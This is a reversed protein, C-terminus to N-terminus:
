NLILRYIDNLNAYILLLFLLGMGIMNAVEIFRESPKRRTIIEVLLFLTYGGDLAPIPIINMFALIVSLFATIQWFSYWSWKNPFMSGLTGFGGVSKAGEKTFILKLSSVYTGLQDTGTKWGRPIAEFFNYRVDEVPYIKDPSRLQIGIKGADNVSVPVKTESGDRLITMPVETSAAATLAPFFESLSPTTDNGVTLIRDGTQLGARRAGEGNVTEEIMVPVRMSMYPANAEVLDSLLRDDVNITVTDTHGRLVTLRAGPQIFDWGNSIDRADIPKGNLSLLIDGDRFGARHMPESFDMGETIGEYPVVRDGWHIAIGIYIAIALLFNFLVGAVMVLLRKWAAKSRFEWPQPEAALDASSKTEDVMGAIDCYGGLPLWGLGYVTDRWTPKGDPRPQHQKGVRITKWAHTDDRSIIQLTGQMPNYKLLSFGPNFFLYFRNVKIGFIRAFIYHGFEHITVLIILAVILQLAKILFTEM